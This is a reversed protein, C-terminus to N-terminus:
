SVREREGVVVRRGRLTWGGRVMRGVIDVLQAREAAKIRELLSGVTDEDAVPVAVQATIAGTDTGSDVLFVTAGTIRVGAALADAPAHTGPFAPLLSNHTNLIRGGFRGLFAPGLLKLFGACVVLDPDFAAVREALERDWQARVAKRDSPAGAAPALPHVFVPTGRGAAWDIGACPRDAGVAVIQAGFGPDAAAGALARMNSGEGSVLVVLRAPALPPQRVDDTM